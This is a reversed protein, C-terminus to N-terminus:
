RVEDGLGVAISQQSLWGVVENKVCDESMGLRNRVYCFAEEGLIASVERTRLSGSQNFGGADNKVATEVRRNLPKLM